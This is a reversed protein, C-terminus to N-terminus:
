DDEAVILPRVDENVVCNTAAKFDQDYPVKEHVLEWMLMGISFVDMEVCPDLVKKVQKLCEPPSWCNANRYDGFLNEYRKLDSSEVEALLVLLSGQRRSEEPSCGEKLQLFVNHSSLHGHAIPSPRISHLTNLTVALEVLISLKTVRSLKEKRVHLLEFLSVRKPLVIGIENQEFYVAM